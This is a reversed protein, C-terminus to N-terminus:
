HWITFSWPSAAGYFNIIKIRYAANIISADKMYASVDCKTFTLENNKHIKLNIYTKKQFRATKARM